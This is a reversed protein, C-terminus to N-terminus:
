RVLSGLGLPLSLSLSPPKLPPPSHSPYTGSLVFNDKFIIGDPTNVHATHQNPDGELQEDKVQSVGLFVSIYRSYRRYM